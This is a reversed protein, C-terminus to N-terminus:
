AVTETLLKDIYEQGYLHAQIPELALGTVLQHQCAPCVWLDGAQVSTDTYKIYVENKEIVM